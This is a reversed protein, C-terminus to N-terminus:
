SHPRIHHFGPRRSGVSPHHSIALRQQISRLFQDGLFSDLAYSYIFNCLRRVQGLPSEIIIEVVFAFNSFLQSMYEPGFEGGFHLKSLSAGAIRSFSQDGPNGDVQM